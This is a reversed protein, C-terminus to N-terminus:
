PEFVERFTAQVTNQNYRDETQTWEDCVWKGAAGVPPTWDFSQVGGQADLFDIIPQIEADTRVSFKLAWTRPKFNIGDAVRQEYGDGYQSRNVRPKVSLQAGWDPTYTFTPM